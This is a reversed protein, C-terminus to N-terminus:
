DGLAFVAARVTAAMEPGHATPRAAHPKSWRRLRAGRATLGTGIAALLPVAGPKANDHLAVTVGDLDPLRPALRGRPRHGAGEPSLIEIM